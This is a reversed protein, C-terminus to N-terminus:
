LIWDMRTKSFIAISDGHEMGLPWDSGLRHNQGRLDVEDWSIDQWRGDIKAVAMVRDGYTRSRPVGCTASMTGHGALGPGDLSYRQPM